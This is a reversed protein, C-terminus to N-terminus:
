PTIDILFTNLRQRVGEQSEKWEWSPLFDEEQTTWYVGLIFYFVFNVKVIYHWIALATLKIFWLSIGTWVAM